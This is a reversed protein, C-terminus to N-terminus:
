QSRNLTTSTRFRSHPAPPPSLATMGPKDRGGVRNPTAFASAESPQSMNPITPGIAMTLLLRLVVVHHGPKDLVLGAM